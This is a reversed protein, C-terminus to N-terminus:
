PYCDQWRADLKDWAAGQKEPIEVAYFALLPDLFVTKFTDRHASRKKGEWSIEFPNFHNHM